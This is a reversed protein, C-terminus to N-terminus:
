RTSLGRSALDARISALLLLAVRALSTKLYTNRMKQPANSVAMPPNEARKSSKAISRNSQVGGWWGRTREIDLNASSAGIVAFESEALRVKAMRTPLCIDSSACKHYKHVKRRSEIRRYVFDLVLM